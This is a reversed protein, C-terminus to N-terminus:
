AAAKNRVLRGPLAGTREGRRRTIVGSVITADYGDARQVLRRGGAPLDHVATPAHLRLGDYDIVNIDAKMGAAILGRDKLGLAVANNNTLAKVAWPLPLRPGRSRDRTWYALLTTPYSSDCIMGYHAGGDGLAVLTDPHELMSRVPELSGGVYNAAPLMLTAHGEQELLLDYALEEPSMGLAEARAGISYEPLPEYDPPDGLPFLQATQGALYLFTPNSHEAKEALLRARMAPDRMAAVREALSLAEIKRYSPHFRFPHFSLDLGYLIGVARPFVQARIPLGDGTTESLLGLTAEMNDPHQVTNLLSFSLPRGAIESLRRLMAMEEAPDKGEQAGPILQFVGSGAVRLGEALARYEKEESTVTPALDGSATRHALSRSTTVGFAGARVGEAVIRTMESLDEDSPPERDAGRQGMVHIRVPAHPIQAAFDIDARRAELADLYEPFSEWNWPLGEVMVVEPIDEVGEMVRVLMDRNEPKCPAFGVGCNGMVVTTVGHNSSPALTDEWTVQGDYHTHIDIFGPTVIRGRADIEEEGTGEITGVACIKGDQVAVDAEYPASGSGDIVLGGRIVIDFTPASAAM